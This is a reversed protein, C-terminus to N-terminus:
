RTLLSILLGFPTAVLVIMKSLFRQFPDLNILVLLIWWGNACFKVYTEESLGVLYRMIHSGDLPPIPILNFAILMCNMAVIENLLPIIKFVPSDPMHWVLAYLLSAGLAILVNMAPGALTILIDDRMRTAPNPLSIQVPKGWGIMAFPLNFFIGALPILGTGIPDLHAFPNLTVRGQSRPLYDGLKDAAKAHGFEHLAISGCLILYLILGQEIHRVYDPNM